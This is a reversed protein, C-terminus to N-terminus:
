QMLRRAARGVVKKLRDSPYVSVVVNFIDERLRTLTPSGIHWQGDLKEYTEHYHCGGSERRASVPRRGRAGM